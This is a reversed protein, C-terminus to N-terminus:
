GAHATYVMTSGDHENVCPVHAISRRANTSLDSGPSYLIYQTRSRMCPSGVVGCYEGNEAEIPTVITTVGLLSRDGKVM